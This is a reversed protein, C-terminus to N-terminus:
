DPVEVARGDRGARFRRRIERLVNRPGGRDRVHVRVFRQCNWYGTLWGVMPLVYGYPGLDEDLGDFVYRMLVDFDSRDFEPLHLDLSGHRWGRVESWKALGGNEVYEWRMWGLEARGNHLGERPGDSYRGQYIGWVVPRSAELVGGSRDLLELWTHFGFAGILRSWVGPPLPRFHVRVRAGRESVADTFVDEPRPRKEATM